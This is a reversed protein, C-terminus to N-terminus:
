AGPLKNAAQLAPGSSQVAASVPAFAAEVQLTGKAIAEQIKGPDKTAAAAEVSASASNIAAEFANLLPQARDVADQVLRRNAAVEPDNAASASAALRQQGVGYLKRFATLQNEWTARRERWPALADGSPDSSCASLALSAGVVIAL